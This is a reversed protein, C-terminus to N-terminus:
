DPLPLLFTFTSGKGPLSEVLVQGGHAEVLHKVISLGLGTGGLERSRAKDVRYFREFIRTQEEESIGIGTDFVSVAVAEGSQQATIRVLGGPRTYKIANDLLNALIQRVADKDAYAKLDAPIELENEIAKADALHGLQGLVQEAVERLFFWESRVPRQGAEIKALDLLDEALNVLRDAESIIKQAFREAAGPDKRGRLAITEAMARISALPTRLEHSVNAVFDRRVSDVKVAPTLDHMVVVAAETGDPTEIPAVYVNLFVREGKHLTLELSAPTHSELVRKVLDDLDRSLACEMVTRGELNGGEIGLLRVAAPNVIQVRRDKDVVMLGDDTRDFIARLKSKEIALEGVTQRIREATRSLVEALTRIETSAAGLKAHSDFDGEAIRRALEIVNALGRVTSGVLHVGLICGAIALAIVPILFLRNLGLYVGTALAITGAFLFIFAYTRLRTM